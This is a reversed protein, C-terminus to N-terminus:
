VSGICRFSWVDSFAIDPEVRMVPRWENHQGAGRFHDADDLVTTDCAVNFAGNQDAFFQASGCYPLPPDPGPNVNVRADIGDALVASSAFLVTAALAMLKFTKM